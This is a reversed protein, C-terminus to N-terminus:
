VELREANHSQPFCQRGLTADQNELAVWDFLSLLVEACICLFLVLRFDFLFVSVSTCVADYEHGGWRRGRM